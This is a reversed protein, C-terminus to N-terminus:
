KNYPFDLMYRNLEQKLGVEIVEFHLNQVNYGVLFAFLKEVIEEFFYECIYDKCM